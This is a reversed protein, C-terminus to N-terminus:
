MDGRGCYQRDYLEQPDGELNTIICRVKEGRETHEVKTIIKRFKKGEKSRYGFEM